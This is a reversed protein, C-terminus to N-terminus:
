RGYKNRWYGSDPQPPIIIPAQQGNAKVQKRLRKIESVVDSQSLAFQQQISKQTVNTHMSEVVVQRPAAYKIYPDSMYENSPPTFPSNILHTQVKQIDEQTLPKVELREHAQEEKFFREKLHQLVTKRKEEKLIEKTESATYVKDGKDLYTIRAGKDSGIYRTGDKKEIIEAGKEDVMAFGQPAYDTGKEFAPIPASRIASVQIATNAAIIGAFIPGLIPGMDSFARVIAVAGSTIAQFVKQKKEADAQKKRMAAIKKDYKAALLEKALSNNAELEVERNKQEELAQIQYGMKEIRAAAFSDALGLLETALATADRVKAKLAEKNLREENELRKREIDELASALDENIKKKEEAIAAELAIREDGYRKEIALELIANGEVKQLDVAKLKELDVIEQQLAQTKQASVEFALQKELEAIQKIAEIRQKTNGRELELGKIQEEIRAKNLDREAQILREGAATVVEERKKDIETLQKGEEFLAKLRDEDRKKERKAAEDAQQQRKKQAEEEEKAAKARAAAAEAIARKEIASAQATLAVKKKQVEAQTEIEEAILKQMELQGDRGTDNNEQELELRKIKLDSLEKELGVMQDLIGRAERNAKLREQDTKGQDAAIEQLEKFKLKLDALPVTIEIERKELQKIVQDFELGAKAGAKLFGAAARGASEMKDTADTVGTGMQIFGDAAKKAAEGFKGDLALEVSEILVLVSKFRNIVNDLIIQGLEKLTEIPNQVAKTLGDFGKFSLDQVVGLLRQFIFALPRTVSTVADIGRQTSLFAAILSGLLVVIAGIGTSILAIRFLSLAKSSGQTAAASAVQAEKFAVLSASVQALSRQAAQLQSGFSGLFPLTGQLASGYNGVNRVHSNLQADMDKLTQTKEFIAKSMREAEARNKGWADPLNKLDKNLRVVEKSLENYSGSAVKVGNKTDRIATEATKVAQGLQGIRQLAQDKIAQDTADGFSRYEAEAEKLEAKLEALSGAQGKFAGPLAKSANALKSQAKEVTAVQADYGQLQTRTKGVEVSVKSLQQVMAETAPATNPMKLSKELEKGANILTQLYSNLQARDKELGGSLTGMAERLAKIVQVLKEVPTTDDISFFDKLNLPSEM